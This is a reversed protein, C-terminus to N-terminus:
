GMVQTAYAALAAFVLGLVYGIRMGKKHIMEHEKNNMNKGDKCEIHQNTLVPDTGRRM